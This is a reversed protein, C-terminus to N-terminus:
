VSKVSCHRLTVTTKVALDLMIDAFGPEIKIRKFKELLKIRKWMSELFVRVKEPEYVKKGIVWRLPLFELGSAAIRSNSLERKLGRVFHFAEKGSLRDTETPQASQKRFFKEQFATSTKDRLGTSETDQFVSKGTDWFVADAVFKNADPYKPHELHPGFLYYCGTGSEVRVIAAHGILTKSATAKNTLFSTKDTFEKYCALIMSSDSVKM